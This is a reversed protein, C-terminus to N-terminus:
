RKSDLPPRSLRRLGIGYPAFLLADMELPVDLLQAIRLVKQELPEYYDELVNIALTSEGATRRSSMIRAYLDLFPTEATTDAVESWSTRWLPDFSTRIAAREVPDNKLDYADTMQRHIDAVEHGTRELFLRTMAARDARYIVLATDFLVCGLRLSQIGKILELRLGPATLYLNDGLFDLEFDGGNRSLARKLLDLAIASVIPSSELILDDPPFGADILWRRYDGYSIRNVVHDDDIMPTLELRLRGQALREVLLERFMSGLALGRGQVAGVNRDSHVHGAELSIHIPGPCEEAIRDVYNELFARDQSSPDGRRLLRSRLFIPQVGPFARRTTEPLYIRGARNPMNLLSEIEELTGPLMDGDDCPLIVLREGTGLSIRRHAYRSSLGGIPAGDLTGFERPVHRFGSRRVVVYQARAAAWIDCWSDDFAQAMAAAVLEVPEGGELFRAYDVLALANGLPHRLACRELEKLVSVADPGCASAVLSPHAVRTMSIRRGDAVISASPQAGVDHWAARDIHREVRREHLLTLVREAAALPGADWVFERRRKLVRGCALAELDMIRDFHLSEQRVEGRCAREADNTGLTHLERGFELLADLNAAVDVSEESQSLFRLMAAGGQGPESLESGVILRKSLDAAHRQRGPEDLKVLVSSDVPTFLELASELTSTVLVSKERTPTAVGDVQRM